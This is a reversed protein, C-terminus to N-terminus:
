TAEVYNAPDEGDPSEHQHQTNKYGYDHGACGPIVLFGDVVAYTNRRGGKWKRRKWRVKQEM